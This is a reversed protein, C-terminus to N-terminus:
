TCLRKRLNFCILVISNILYKIHNGRQCYTGAKNIPCNCKISNQAFYTTDECTGTNCNKVLGSCSLFSKIGPCNGCTRQCYIQNSNTNCLGQQFFQPCDVIVGIDTCNNLSQLDLFYSLISPTSNFLQTTNSYKSLNPLMKSFENLKSVM